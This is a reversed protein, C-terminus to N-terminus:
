YPLRLRVRLGGLPSDELRIDGGHARAFDRALTLGLGTGAVNQSRADDLRHFPRFADERQDEPIGPGDDDFLIEAMRPGKILRVECRNGYGVGNSILNTLTRTLAMPRATVTIESVEIVRAGDVREAVTRAIHDLRLEEPKEGEEGSAFALYEDLMKSMDDLDNRAGVIEESQEMMALQ